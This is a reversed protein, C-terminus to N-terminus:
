SPMPATSVGRRNLTRNERSLGIPKISFTLTPHPTM